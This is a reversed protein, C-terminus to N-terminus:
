QGQCETRSFTAAGNQRLSVNDVLYAGGNSGETVAQFYIAANTWPKTTRARMSYTRLPTNAPLWFSCTAVESANSELILVNIRKRVASSNGLAFQADLAIGSAVGVGTQQLVTGQGKSGKPAPLRYFQLVGDSVGAVLYDLSPAATTQWSSLGASFDGNVIM